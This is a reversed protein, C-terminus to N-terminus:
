GLLAVLVRQVAPPPSLFVTEDGYKKIFSAAWRAGRLGRPLGRATFLGERAAAASEELFAQLRLAPEAVCRLHADTGSASALAHKTNPEVVLEGDEPVIVRKEDGLTFEARGEVVSWRETQRPHLHAPLGGGPELWVDVVLDEGRPEFALRVKSVPDRVIEM